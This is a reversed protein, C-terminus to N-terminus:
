FTLHNAFLCLTGNQLKMRRSLCPLAFIRHLQLPLLSIARRMRRPNRDRAGSTSRGANHGGAYAAAFTAFLNLKLFHRTHVQPSSFACSRRSHAPSFRLLCPVLQVKVTLVGISLTSNHVCAACGTANRNGHTSRVSAPVVPFRYPNAISKLKKLRFAWCHVADAYLALLTRPIQKTGTSCM